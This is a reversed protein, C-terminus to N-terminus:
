ADRELSTLGKRPRAALAGGVGRARVYHGLRQRQLHVWRRLRNPVTRRQSERLAWALWEYDIGKIKAEDPNRRYSDHSKILSLDNDICYQYLDSGPHPTYFAPSYYDPDIERLMSVTELVEEGPASRDQLARARALLGPATTPLCLRAGEAELLHDVGTLLCRAVVAGREVEVRTGLLSRSVTFVTGKVSVRAERTHVVLDVRRAPEVEVRMEGAEWTVEPRATTGAIEGTGRVELAVAEGAWAGTWHEPSAISM